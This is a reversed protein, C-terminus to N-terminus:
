PKSRIHDNVLDVCADCAVVIPKLSRGDPLPATTKAGITGGSIEGDLDHTVFVDHGDKCTGILTSPKQM